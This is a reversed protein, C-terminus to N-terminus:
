LKNENRAYKRILKNLTDRHLDSYHEYKLCHIICIKDQDTLEYKDGVNENLMELFTKQKPHLSHRLGDDVIPLEKLSKIIDNWRETDTPGLGLSYSMALTMAMITDDYTRETEM